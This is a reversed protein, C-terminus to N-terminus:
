SLSVTASNSTRSSGCSDRSRASCCGFTAALICRRRSSCRLRLLARRGVGFGAKPLHDAPCGQANAADSAGSRVRVWWRRGGRMGGCRLVPAESGTEAPISRRTCEGVRTGRTGGGGSCGCTSRDSTAVASSGGRGVAAGSRLWPSRQTSSNSTARGSGSRASTGPRSCDAASHPTRPLGRTSPALRPHGQGAATTACTAVPLSGIASRTPWTGPCPSSAGAARGFYRATEHPPM